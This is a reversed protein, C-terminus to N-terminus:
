GTGAPTVEEVMADGLRWTTWPLMIFTSASDFNKLGDLTAATLGGLVARPGQALLESSVWEDPTRTGSHTVVVGKAPRQWRGSTVLWRVRGEGLLRM